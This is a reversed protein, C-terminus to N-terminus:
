EDDEQEEDDEGALWDAEDKRSGWIRGGFSTTRPRMVRKKVWMWGQAGMREGVGFVKEGGHLM